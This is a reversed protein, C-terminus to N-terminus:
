PTASRPFIWLRHSPAPEAASPVLGGTLGPRIIGTRPTKTEPVVATTFDRLPPKPYILRSTAPGNKGPKGKPKQQAM